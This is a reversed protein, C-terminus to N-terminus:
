RDVPHHPSVSDGTPMLPNKDSRRYMGPASTHNPRASSHARAGVRVSQQIRPCDWLRPWVSSFTYSADDFVCSQPRSDMPFSRPSPPHRYAVTSRRDGSGFPGPRRGTALASWSLSAVPFRQCGPQGMLKTIYTNRGTVRCPLSSARGAAAPKRCGVASRTSRDPRGSSDVRPSRGSAARPTSATGM